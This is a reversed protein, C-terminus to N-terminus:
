DLRRHRHESLPDHIVEGNEAGHLQVEYDNGAYYDGFKQECQELLAVMQRQWKVKMSQMVLRPLVLYNAYSLGFFQHIPRDTTDPDEEPHEALYARSVREMDFSCFTRQGELSLNTGYAADM